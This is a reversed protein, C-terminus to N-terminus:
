FDVGMGLSWSDLSQDLRVSTDPIQLISGEIANEFGHVWALDLTIARTLRMSGGLSFQHQVVAPLQTNFLTLPAPIPNENFLYGIRLKMRDNLCYQAGLAVSFISEWGTGGQSVPDGWLAAGGYDFYRVDAALITRDFGKYAVGWSIIWPITMRLHLERARGIEDSSNFNFTELWQPSTYALGLDWCPNLEYFMGVRFGGGWSLHSHTAAPFTPVGDGNGDDPSAFFAPDAVLSAAMVTPGGGITLRESVRVAATPTLLLGSMAAYQPGFGFTRLPDFPSLVPNAANGPFNVSGGVLAFMGLGLTLPSNERHYVMAITPLAAVGSDSFDVGFRDRPPVSSALNTDGYVLEAGFYVQNGPLEGIAAPNWYTAGAADLPAATSAGAMARHVPGAAPVILGQATVVSPLGLFAFLACVVLRCRGLM